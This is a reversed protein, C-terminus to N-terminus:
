KWYTKSIFKELFFSIFSHENVLFFSFLFTNILLFVRWGRKLDDCIGKQFNADDLWFWKLGKLFFIYINCNVWCYLFSFSQFFCAYVIILKQFFSRLPLLVLNKISIEFFYGWFGGWKQFLFVNIQIQLFHNRCKTLMKNKSFFIGLFVAYFVKAWGNDELIWYNKSM